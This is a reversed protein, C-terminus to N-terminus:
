VREVLWLAALVLIALGRRDGTPRRGGWTSREALVPSGKPEIGAREQFFRLRRVRDDIDGQKMYHQNLWPPKAPDFTAAAKNVHAIDFKEILQKM